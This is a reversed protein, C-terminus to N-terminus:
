YTYSNRVFQKKYFFGLSGRIASPNNKYKLKWLCNCFDFIYSTNNDFVSNKRKQDYRGAGKDNKFFTLFLGLHMLFGRSIEYSLNKLFGELNM